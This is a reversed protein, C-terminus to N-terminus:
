ERPRHNKIKHNHVRETRTDNGLIFMTFRGAHQNQRYSGGSTTDPEVIL